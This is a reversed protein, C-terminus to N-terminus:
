AGEERNENLKKKIDDNLKKKIETDIDTATMESYGDLSQVYKVAEIIKDVSEKRTEALSIIQDSSYDKTERMAEIDDDAFLDRMANFQEQSLEYFGDNLMTEYQKQAIEERGEATVWKSNIFMKQQNELLKLSAINMKSLSGLAIKRNNKTHTIASFKNRQTRLFGKIEGSAVGEKYLRQVEKNQEKIHAILEKRVNKHGAM